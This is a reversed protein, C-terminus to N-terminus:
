VVARSTAFDSSIKGAKRTRKESTRREEEKAHCNGCPCEIFRIVYSIVLKNSCLTCYKDYRGWLIWVKNKRMLIERNDCRNKYDSLYELRFM